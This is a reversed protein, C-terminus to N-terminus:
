RARKHSRGVAVVRRREPEIDTEMTSTSFGTQDDYGYDDDDDDDDECENRRRLGGGNGMALDVTGCRQAECIPEYELLKVRYGAPSPTACYRQNQVFTVADLAKLGYTSMLYAAVFATSKDIGDSCCVLINQGSQVIETLLQNSHVFHPIISQKTVDAPVDIFHFTVPAQNGRLFILESPDRICLVHAIQFEQLFEPRRVLHYPGLLVHPVIPQGLYRDNYSWAPVCLNIPGSNAEPEKPWDIHTQM